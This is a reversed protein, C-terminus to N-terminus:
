FYFSCWILSATHVSFRGISITFMSTWCSQKFPIETHCNSSVHMFLGYGNTVNTADRFSDKFTDHDCFLGTAITGWIGCFLHVPSADVVDDIKLSVLLQLLKVRWSEMKKFWLHHGPAKCANFNERKMDKEMMIWLCLFVNYLQLPKRDVLNACPWNSIHM